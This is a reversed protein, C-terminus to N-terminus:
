VLECAEQYIEQMMKQIVTKDLSIEAELIYRDLISLTDESEFAEFEETGQIEFNEVVKLEAVNSAYLKDIFKEFQKTDTKKRVVVKVIKNEYERTDFTQYNTDEYYISYYMKYPNNIPTHELTETDFIHFGRTDNLDNWYIEYPNGLYFVTNNDSRTHYHGSFVRKFNKFLDAELGHEMVISRNVRFGQLELHGMAVKAQTNKIMRITKEQNDQNIWPILFVKLNDLQVEIPESYVSVNEYERLLLDVANVENTNKYYATHNGVITHVTVGMAQLKDYYNNKAWSLASFDIGKRSDFTDGMDIVTTIGYQELTPFFIDNYFKLFYDHFLKSNKRAGFHQDTIIAVKM